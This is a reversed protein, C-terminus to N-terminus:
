RKTVIYNKKTEGVELLKTPLDWLKSAKDLAKQPNNGALNKPMKMEKTEKKSM